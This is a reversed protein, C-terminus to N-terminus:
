LLYKWEMKVAVEVGKLAKVEPSVENWKLNEVEAIVVM